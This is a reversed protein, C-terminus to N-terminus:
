QTEVRRIKKVRPRAPPIWHILLLGINILHGSHLCGSREQSRSPCPLNCGSSALFSKLEYPVFYFRSGRQKTQDARRSPDDFVIRDQIATSTDFVAAIGQETASRSKVVRCRVLWHCPLEKVFAVSKPTKYNGLQVKAFDILTDATVTTGERLIIGAHVAEGWDLHPVGVIASMLAADHEALATEVEVAYVNFGDTIIMDKKATLSSFTVVLILIVSIVPNGSVTESNPPLLKPIKMM